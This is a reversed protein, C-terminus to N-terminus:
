KREGRNAFAMLVDIMGLDLLITALYLWEFDQSGFSDIAALGLTFM